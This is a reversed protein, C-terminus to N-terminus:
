VNSVANDQGLTDKGMRLARIAPLVQWTASISLLRFSGGSLYSTHEVLSWVVIVVACLVSFFVYFSDLRRDSYIPRGWRYRLWVYWAGLMLSNALVVGNVFSSVGDGFRPFGTSSILAGAWIGVLFKPWQLFNEEAKLFVFWNIAILPVFLLGRATAPVPIISGKGGICWILYGGATAGAVAQVIMWWLTPPKNQKEAIM